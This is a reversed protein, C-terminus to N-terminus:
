RETRNDAAQQVMGGKPVLLHEKRRSPDLAGVRLLNSPDLMVKEFSDELTAVMDRALRLADPVYLNGQLLRIVQRRFRPRVVFVTFLNQLRYFLSILDYWAEVGGSVRQQFEQFRAQEPKGKFVGDIAEFAYKASFM